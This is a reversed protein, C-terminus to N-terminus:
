LFPVHAVCWGAATVARRLLGCEQQEVSMGQGEAGEVSERRLVERRGATLVGVGDVAEEAHQQAEDVVLVGGVDGGGEVEGAGGEAGLGERRVLRLAGAVGGSNWPWTSSIRSVSWDSPTRVRVLSVKSASSMM